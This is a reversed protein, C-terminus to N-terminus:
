EEEIRPALVFVLNERSDEHVVKLPFDEGMRIRLDDCTELDDFMQQAKKVYDLSFMSEAEEVTEGEEDEETEVDELGFSSQVSIQDGDNEVELVESDGDLKFTAADTAIELKKRLTKLDDKDLTAHLNYDLEGISPVDDTSLNLIPLEYRDDGETLVLDSGEVWITVEDDFVSIVTALNEFNVGILMGEEDEYTYEEFEESESDIEYEEFSDRPVELDVMAVMAPDAVTLELGNETFRLLGESILKSLRKFLQETHDADLTCKM